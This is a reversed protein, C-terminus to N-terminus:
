REGAARHDCQRSAPTCVTQAKSAHRLPDVREAVTEVHGAPLGARHRRKGSWAPVADASAPKTSAVTAKPM